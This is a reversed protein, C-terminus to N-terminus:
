RSNAPWPQCEGDVMMDFGATLSQMTPGSIAGSPLANNLATVFANMQALEAATPQNSESGGNGYISVTGATSVLQNTRGSRLIKVGVPGTTGTYNSYSVPLLHM